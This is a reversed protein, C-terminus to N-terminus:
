PQLPFRFRIIAGPPIQGALDLHHEAVCAIVPYGGTVPHDRLFLVPQGSPPVQIAGCVLGESPLEADQFAAARQLPADGCLRLGVRNSQPTVQWRQRTLRDLAQPTFWDARPGPLIDLVVEADRRPLSPPPLEQPIVAPNGTTPRVSLCQGATLPPSGLQSLTDTSLSGLVAQMAFGGRVAVYCRLGATCAAITLCDGDALALAQYRAVRWQRGQATRLTLEADAGTVALVTDGQSQLSLGAGVTELAGEHSANGVLRNAARLAAQDMAGSAGVGQDLLGARGLDQVLTLLGPHKVRLASAPPHSANPSAREAAAPSASPSPPTSPSSSTHPAVPQATKPAHPLQPHRRNVDVFQLRQGPALLAPRARTVDWMPLTTTGILQWGGPSERPYVASFNGALAVAGAPVKTRPTARRAVNFIPDGGALYAFGPAFGTFAVFWESDTHRQVVEKVSLGLLQAVQPLDEGDYVVPIELLAGGPQFNAAKDLDRRALDQELRQPSTARPNFHILLTRAAPVVERVGMMPLSQLSRLLALTQFMDELEVLVASHNVSLFRV